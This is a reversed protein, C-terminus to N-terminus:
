RGPLHRELSLPYLRSKLSDEYAIGRSVLYHIPLKKWFVMSDLLTGDMDFVVAQPPQIFDSLM